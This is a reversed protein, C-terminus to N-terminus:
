AYMGVHVRIERFIRVIVFKDIHIDLIKKKNKCLNLPQMRIENMQYNYHCHMHRMNQMRIEIHIRASLISRYIINRHAYKHYETKTQTDLM